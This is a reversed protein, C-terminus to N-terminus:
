EIVWVVHVTVEIEIIPSGIENSHNLACGLMPIASELYDINDNDSDGYERDVNVKECGSVKQKMAEAIKEAKRRSCIMAEQLLNERAEDINSAYYETDVSVDYRSQRIMDLLGNYRKIDFPMKLTISRSADYDYDDSYNNKDVDDNLLHIKSLDCGAEHLQGLFHECQETADYLAATSNKNNTEFKLVIKVMDANLKQKAQGEVYIKGM